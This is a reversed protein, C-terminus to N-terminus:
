ARPDEGHEIRHVTTTVDGWGHVYRAATETAPHVHVDCALIADVGMGNCRTIKYAPETECCERAGYAYTMPRMDPAFVARAFEEGQDQLFATADDYVVAEWEETDLPNFVANVTEHVHTPDADDEVQIAVIMTRM